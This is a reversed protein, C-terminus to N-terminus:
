RPARNTYYLRRHVGNCGDRCIGGASAWTGHRARSRSTRLARYQSRRFPVAHHRQSRCLDGPPCCIPELRQGREVVFVQNERLIHDHFYDQDEYFFHGKANQFEPLSKERSDRWLITVADFDEPRYDRILYNKSMTQRPLIFQALHNAGGM